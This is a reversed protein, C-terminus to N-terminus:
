PEPELTSRDPPVSAAQARLGRQFERPIVYRTHFKRWDEPHRRYVPDDELAGPPTNYSPQDHSPLPLVTKSFGTNYDGDKNWGDGIMVFDRAWGSSPPPPAPFRMLLEDGANAIVYRDDVKALLELVDGYRTYYGILDRWRQGTGVLDSYNPLEPSSADAQGMASYGRHHLVATAPSLRTTKLPADPVGQAIAFSDWYVELNTRLRCRHPAASRVVGDLPILITKNKGAPFGLDGAVVKWRGDEGPVELVLDRPPDHRGQSVALNVSSDTPHTWGHAVLWLPGDAPADGLELEVWHDRTIGQYTGRGFTDLYRGDRARVIETVDHGNDDVARAVPRTPGTPRVELTPPRRAAFREDVYIETGEPHDVVLLAMNDFFHTEWLDATIRVDYHGDVPALQDGRIKVWDETQTVGATDQGNIRLGLPSRWLFDTVFRIANGDFAFLFPCSGKLRQETVLERDSTMGFEAQVTGNPWVIRAVDASERNGLGFRVLPGAITQKQVLLGSRVEIEGGVGFPNIRGDGAVKAARPRLVQWHYGKTGRAAARAPRGKGTLGALDFLGDGSLEAVATVRLGEPVDQPQFRGEAVSLWARSGEPGSALLDLGGNNDLDAVFLRDPPGAAAGPAAWRVIEATEWSRGDDRDSIRLVAGDTRTAVIDMSGDGDLDAVALATLKGLDEPVPRPRYQGTRENTYVHLGGGSDLIAADPDGDQDLDAAVFDRPDAAGEFPELVAFTGDGNNRLVLMAGARPGLVVDLDGDLEIDLPWAGFLDAELVKAPLGSEKTADAFEGGEKQRYIRLGGAGALVLDMREDLDLTLALLGHPSPPVAKSGGPFQLAMGPADVRRATSGDAVVVAPTEAETLPVVVLTGGGTADSEGITEVSYSLAEDPAASTPPPQPLRLFRDIPEGITGTPAEVASLSQRFAPTPLLVNRLFVIRTSAQRIEQRGAAAELQRYQERANEPWSASLKGLRAVTDRLAEVDGRKAALRAREILVALNSPQIELIGEAQRWVENDSDAGAQRQAATMLAFRAKLDKPDLEIARRLHEVAADFRGRQSELLGLLREVAASGPALARARGLDVAAADFDGLRIRLLGLNAWPAPEQPVLKTARTFNAEARDKTDVDLAVVGTYFASVMERYAESEPGPLRGGAFRWYGVAAALAVLAALLIVWYRRSRFRESM